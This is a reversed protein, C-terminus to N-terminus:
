SGQGITAIPAAAAADEEIAHAVRALTRLRLSSPPPESSRLAPDTAVRLQLERIEDQLSPSAARFARDLRAEEVEDLQGLAELTALELLEDRTPEESGHM